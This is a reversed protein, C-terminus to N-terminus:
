EGIEEEGGDEEDVEQDRLHPSRLLLRLLPALSQGPTILAARGTPRSHQALLAHYNPFCASRSSMAERPPGHIAVTAHTKMAEGTDYIVVVNSFTLSILM